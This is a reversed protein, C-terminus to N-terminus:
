NVSWRCREPTERLQKYNYQWYIGESKLVHINMVTNLFGM